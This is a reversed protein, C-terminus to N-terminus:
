ITIERRRLGGNVHDQALLISVGSNRNVRSTRHYLVIIQALNWQWLSQYEYSQADVSRPQWNVLKM